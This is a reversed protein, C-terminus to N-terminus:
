SGIDWMNANGAFRAGLYNQWALLDCNAGGPKQQSASAKIKAEIQAQTKQVTPIDEADDM